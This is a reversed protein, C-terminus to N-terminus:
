DNIEKCSYTEVYVGDYGCYELSRDPTAFAYENKTKGEVRGSSSYM